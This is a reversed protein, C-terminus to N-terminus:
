RCPFAEKLASITLVSGQFHLDNPHEQLFSVVIKVLQELNAPEPSCFLPPDFCAVSSVFTKHLENVGSIFGLCFNVSSFDLSPANKNEELFRITEKCNDLLMYGDIDARGPSAIFLFAAMLVFVLKKM